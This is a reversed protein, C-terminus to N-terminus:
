RAGTHKQHWAAHGPKLWLCGAAFPRFKNRAARDACPLSLSRSLPLSFSIRAPSTCAIPIRAPLAEQTECVQQVQFGVGRTPKVKLAGDRGRLSGWPAPRARRTLGRGHGVLSKSASAQSARSSAHVKPFAETTEHAPVDGRSRGTRRAHWPRSTRQSSRASNPPKLWAPSRQCAQVSMISLAHSTTPMSPAQPGPLPCHCASVVAGNARRSVMMDHEGRAQGPAADGIGLRFGIVAPLCQARRHLYTSACGRNQAPESTPRFNRSM